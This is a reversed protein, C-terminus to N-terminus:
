RLHKRTEEGWVLGASSEIPQSRPLVVTLWKISVTYKIKLKWSIILFEGEFKSITGQLYTSLKQHWMLIYIFVRNSNVQWLFMVRFIARTDSQCFFKRHEFRKPDLLLFSLCCFLYFSGISKIQSFSYTLFWTRKELESSQGFYLLRSLTNSAM